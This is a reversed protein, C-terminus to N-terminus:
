DCATIIGLFEGQEEPPGCWVTVPDECGGIANCTWDGFPCDATTACRISCYGEPTGPQKSCLGVPEECDETQTCRRNWAEETGDPRVVDGADVGADMGTDDGNPGCGMLGLMFFSSLMLIAVRFM